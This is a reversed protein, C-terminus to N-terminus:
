DVALVSATVHSLSTIEGVLDGIKRDEMFNKEISLTLTEWVPTQKHLAAQFVAGQIALGVQALAQEYNQADYVEACHYTTM